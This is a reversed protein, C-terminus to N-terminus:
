RLWPRNREVRSLFGKNLERAQTAMLGEAVEIGADDLATALVDADALAGGVGEADAAGFVQAITEFRQEVKFHTVLRIGAAALDTGVAILALQELALAPDA